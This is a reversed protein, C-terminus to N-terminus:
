PDRGHLRVARGAGARAAVAAAIPALDSCYVFVDAALVLHHQAGAEAALFEMLEAVELRDYLGKARAQEIM